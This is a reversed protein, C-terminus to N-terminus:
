YYKIPININTWTPTYYKNSVSTNGYTDYITITNGSLQIYAYMYVASVLTGYGLQVERNQYLDIPTDLSLIISRFEEEDYGLRSSYSTMTILADGPLIRIYEPTIDLTHTISTIIDEEGSVSVLATSIMNQVQESSLYDHTHDDFSISKNLIFAKSPGVVLKQAKLLFSSLSM